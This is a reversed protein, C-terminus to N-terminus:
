RTCGVCIGRTIADDRVQDPTRREIASSANLDLKDPRPVTAGSKVTYDSRNAAVEMPDSADGSWVLGPFSLAIGFACAMALPFRM